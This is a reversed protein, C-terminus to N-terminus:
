RSNEMNPSLNKRVGRERTAFHNRIAVEDEAIQAQIDNKSAKGTEILYPLSALRCIYQTFLSPVPLVKTTDTYVFESKNRQTYIRLGGTSNYSPKPYLYIYEGVLDYEKPIGATTQYNTLAGEVKSRDLKKLLQPTGTASDLIEFRLVNIVESTFDDLNYSQTNAVLNLTEIPATDRNPDEWNWRGDSQFALTFFRDVAANIRRTKSKAPYSNIDSNCIDDIEQFAGTGDTTDNFKM